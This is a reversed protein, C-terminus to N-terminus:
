CIIRTLYKFNFFVPTLVPFVIFPINLSLREPAVVATSIVKLAIEYPTSCLSHFIYFM